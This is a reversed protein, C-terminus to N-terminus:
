VRVFARDCDIQAVHSIAFLRVCSFCQFYDIAFLRDCCNKNSNVHHSSNLQDNNNVNTNIM